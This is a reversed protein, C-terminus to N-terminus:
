PGADASSDASPKYMHSVKNWGAINFNNEKIQKDTVKVIKGNWPDHISYTRPPGADVGTVLM